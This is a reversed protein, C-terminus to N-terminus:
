YKDTRSFSFKRFFIYSYRTKEHVTVCIYIYIHIHTNHHEVIDVKHSKTWHTKQKQGLMHRYREARDHHEWGKHKPEYKHVLMHRNWRNLHKHCKCRHATHKQKDTCLSIYARWLIQHVRVETNNNKTSTKMYWTNGTYTYAWSIGTCTSKAQTQQKNTFIYIYIHTHTHANWWHQSKLKAWNRLDWVLLLM